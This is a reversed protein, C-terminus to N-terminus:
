NNAPNPPEPISEVEDRTLLRDCWEPGISGLPLPGQTAVEGGPNCGLRSSVAMATVPGDAEVVCGGLYEGDGVFSLMWQGHHPDTTEQLLVEEYRAVWAAQTLPHDPGYMALCQQYRVLPSPPMMLQSRRAKRQVRPAAAFVTSQVAYDRHNVTAFGQCFLYRGGDPRAQIREVTWWVGRVLIEDDPQVAEIPVLAAEHELLSTTPETDTM